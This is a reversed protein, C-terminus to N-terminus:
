PYVPAHAHQGLPTASVRFRSSYGRHPMSTQLLRIMSHSSDCFRKSAPLCPSLLVAGTVTVKYPSGSILTRGLRKRRGDQKSQTGEGDSFDVGTVPLVVAKACLAVYQVQGRGRHVGGRRVGASSARGSVIARYLGSDINQRHLAKEQESASM